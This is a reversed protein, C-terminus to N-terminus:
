QIKLYNRVQELRRFTPLMFNCGYQLRNMNCYLTRKRQNASSRVKALRIERSKEVNM